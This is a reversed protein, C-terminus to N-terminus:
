KVYRSIIKMHGLDGWLKRNGVVYFNQKARSVAVNLLNVNSTAWQRAGNQMPSPAGLLLIVTQAEKGQFTHVTGINDRIWQSPDDIGYDALRESEQRMRAGMQDAVMRFPSIVFIDTDGRFENITHILMNAVHEGEEPCWKEQASGEIDFWATQEGIFRTVESPKPQTAHVMLGNYAMRNSIKFMPDECRRHVLLPSGIRIESLDRPITTGYSNAHDSLTQVSASPAMWHYPEVGMYKSIGEVLTPPLTFVPEIQLPDGVSMVRKARCIAGVAAQPTAQGAEDILLWGISDKPLKKLMRGVSAFATSFVPTFLFATSWLHPLLAQKDEPLSGNGLCYFYAGLNQRVQKASADIFAKHLEIAAIFVDDRIRQAADSYNPTFKQQDDHSREWLEPTVLKGGCIAGEKEIVDLTKQYSKKVSALKENFTKLQKFKKDYDKYASGLQGQAETLESQISKLDDLLLNQKGKWERWTGRAFLRKIFSPKEKEHREKQHFANSKRLEIEKIESVLAEKVEQASSVLGGQEEAKVTLERIQTRLAGVQGSAEYARQARDRINKSKALAEAFRQRAKEWRRNAEEPSSPPDCEQVIKPIIDEGNEDVEIDLQGSISYFYTWLGCNKDWWAKQAFNNRNTSNGLVAAISGWTEEEGDSLADSITKFYNLDGIDEAVQERLPLEKSVNEVAKNNTSAVVIEHGRLTEDLRYLHVFANGLKMQGAHEFADDTNKFSYLATAREVLVSAVVDRLLTTKGTGPPGNVSFLGGDKLEKMALNVSTQQLLVLSHRGKSPWRGLPMNKPQLAREIHVKDKLLDYQNQPKTIGLYESLAKNPEGSEVSHKARQLDGLFFSNLIDPDPAGKKFSQYQRIAFSPASCDESPIDCNHTLWKFAQEAKDLSFPLVTGNVDQKYIIKELGEKLAEEAAEWSKLEHLRGQLARAYAWGFSSIALGTDPIPVGHRDLIILGLSALGTVSQREVREDRYVALLKETAKELDVCGLHVVYFLQTKPRAKEGKFWPEQNHRLYAVSGGPIVLDKPKKYSQPSLAELATWADLIDEPRNALEAPIHGDAGEFAHQAAGSIVTEWDLEVEENQRTDRVPEDIPVVPPPVYNASDKEEAGLHTRVTGLLTKARHTNRHLDLEEELEELVAVDDKSSEFVGELEVVKYKFYKRQEM